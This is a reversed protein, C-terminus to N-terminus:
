LASLSHQFICPAPIYQPHRAAGSSWWFVRRAQSERCCMEGDGSRFMKHNASSYADARSQGQCSNSGAGEEDPRESRKALRAMRDGSGSKQGPGLWERSRTRLKCSRGTAGETGRGKVVGTKRAEGQATKLRVRESV